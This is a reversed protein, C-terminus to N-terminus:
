ISDNNFPWLPFTKTEKGFKTGRTYIDKKSFFFFLFRFRYTSFVFLYLRFTHITWTHKKKLLLFHGVYAKKLLLFHDVVNIFM